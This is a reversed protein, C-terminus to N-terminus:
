QILRYYIHEEQSTDFHRYIRILDDKCWGYFKVIPDTLHYRPLHTKNFKTLLTKKEHDSLKEHRPVLEHQIYSHQLEKAHFTTVHVSLTLLHRRAISSFGVTTVICVDHIDDDLRQEIDRVIHIGIKDNIQVLLLNRGTILTHHARRFTSAPNETDDDFVYSRCKLMHGICVFYEPTFQYTNQKWKKETCIKKFYTAVLKDFSM